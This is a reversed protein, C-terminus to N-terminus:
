GFRGYRYTYKGGIHVYIYTTSPIMFVIRCIPGRNEQQRVLGPFVSVFPKTVDYKCGGSSYSFYYIDTRIMSCLLLSTGNLGSFSIDGCEM